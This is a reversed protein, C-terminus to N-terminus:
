RKVAGIITKIFEALFVFGLWSFGVAMLFIFPWLPIGLIDTRTGLETIYYEGAKFFAQWAILAATTLCVLCSIAWAISQALRPFKNYLIDIRIHMKLVQCYAMGWTGGIVLMLGVLETAGLLPHKFFYRGGVDVVSVIMMVGYMVAGVGAMWQSVRWLIRDFRDAPGEVKGQNEM